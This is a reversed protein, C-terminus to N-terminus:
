DTMNPNTYDFNAFRDQRVEGLVDDPIDTLRAPLDTYDDEFYRCDAMTLQHRFYSMM